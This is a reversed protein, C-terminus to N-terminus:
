GAISEMHSNHAAVAHALDHGEVLPEIVQRPNHTQRSRNTYSIRGVKVVFNVFLVFFFKKRRPPRRPGTLFVTAAAPPRPSLM